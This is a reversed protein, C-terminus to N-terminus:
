SAAEYAFTASIQDGSAWTMPTTSRVADMTAFAVSTAVAALSVSTNGYYAVEGFFGNSASADWLRATGLSPNTGSYIRAAIPMSVTLFKTGFTTTSGFTILFQAVILRGVRQYQGVATGDGLAWDTGAGYSGLAPTWSRWAGTFAVVEWATGSYSYYRDTDTECITMGESPSGPRTASTCVQVGRSIPSYAAAAAAATLYSSLLADGAEALAQFDGPLDVNDSASPYPLGKPTTPV